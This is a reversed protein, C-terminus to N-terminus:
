ANRYSLTFISLKPLNSCQASLHLTLNHNTLLTGGAHIPPGDPPPFLRYLACSPSYFIHSDTVNQFDTSTSPLSHLPPRPAGAKQDAQPGDRCRMPIYPARPLCPSSSSARVQAHGQWFLPQTRTPAGPGGRQPTPRVSLPLAKQRSDLKKSVTWGRSSAGSKQSISLRCKFLVMARALRSSKRNVRSDM